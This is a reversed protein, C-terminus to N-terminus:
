NYFIFLFLNFVEITFESSHQGKLFTELLEINEEQNKGEKISFLIKLLKSQM